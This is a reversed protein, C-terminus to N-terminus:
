PAGICSTDSSQEPCLSAAGRWTKSCQAAGLVSVLTGEEAVSLGWVGAGSRMVQLQTVCAANLPYLLLCWPLPVSRKLQPPVAFHPLLKFLLGSPFMTLM